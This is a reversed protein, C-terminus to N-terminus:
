GKAYERLRADRLWLALWIFIGLYVGFLTHSALPMGARLNSAIAGGIVGTLLVAGALGTRPIAFLVTGLLELVGILLLYQAPWGIQTMSDHAAQMGLFKPAVSAGLMFLVVLATMIWGTKKM